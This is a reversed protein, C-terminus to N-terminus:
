KKASPLKSAMTLAFFGAKDIWASALGGCDVSMPGVPSAREDPGYM